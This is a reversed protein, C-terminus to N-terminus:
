VAISILAPLCAFRWRLNPGREPADAAVDPAATRDLLKVSAYGDFRFDGRLRMRRSSEHLHACIHLAARKVALVCGWQWWVRWADHCQTKGGGHQGQPASRYSRISSDYGLSRAEGGDPGKLLQHARARWVGRRSAQGNEDRQARAGNTIHERYLDSWTTRPRHPRWSTCECFPLSAM